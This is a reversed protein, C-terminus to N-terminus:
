KLVASFKLEALARIENALQKYFSRNPSNPRWALVHTRKLLNQKLERVILDSDHSLESAIYLSPLFAIGM